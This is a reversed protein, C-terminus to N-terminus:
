HNFSFKANVDLSSMDVNTSKITDAGFTYTHEIYSLPAVTFNQKGFLANAIETGNKDKVILQNVSLNTVAASYGNVIYCHFVLEGNKFYVEKPLVTINNAAWRGDIDTNCFYLNAPTEQKSETEKKPTETTQESKETVTSNINEEQSSDGAEAKEEEESELTDQADNTDAIETKFTKSTQKESRNSATNNDCATLGLALILVAVIALLKKM